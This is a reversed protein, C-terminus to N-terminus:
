TRFYRWNPPLVRFSDSIEVVEM